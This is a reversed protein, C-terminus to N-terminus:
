GTQGFKGGIKDPNLLREAHAKVTANCECATEQLGEVNM